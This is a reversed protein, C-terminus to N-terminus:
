AKRLDADGLPLEWEFFGHGFGWCADAGREEDRNGTYGTWESHAYDAPHARLILARPTEERPAPYGPTVYLQIFNAAVRDGNQRRIAEVSLTCLMTAQPMELEITHAHAVRRHPFPVSTSGRALHHTKGLTNIGDLHWQLIVDTEKQTSFHSSAVPIQVRQGPQVRSIPAFDIPLSNLM